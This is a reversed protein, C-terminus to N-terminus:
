INLPKKLRPCSLLLSLLVDSPLSLPAPDVFSRLVPMSSPNDRACYTSASVVLSSPGINKKKKVLSNELM